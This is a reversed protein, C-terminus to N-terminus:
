EQAVITIYTKTKGYHDSMVSQTVSYINEKDKLWENITTQTSSEGCSDEFSFIKCVIVAIFIWKIM